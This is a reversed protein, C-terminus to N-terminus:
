PRRELAATAARRVAADSSTAALDALLAADGRALALRLRAADDDPALSLAREALEAAGELDGLSRAMDSAVVFNGPHEFHWVFSIFERQRLYERLATERRWSRSVAVAQFVVLAVGLAACARRVTRDPRWLAVVAAGAALSAVSTLGVIQPVLREVGAPNYGPPAGLLLGFGKGQLGFTTAEALGAALTQPWRTGAGVLNVVAGAVTAGITARNTWAPRSASALPLLWFPLAAAQYRPGWTYGGYWDFQRAANLTLFTLGVGVCLGARVREGPPARLAVLAGVLAPPAFVFVGRSTGLATEFLTHASPLTFGLVGRASLERLEETGFLSYGTRWPAGFCATHYAMILLLLPAAGAGFALLARAREQAGGRCLVVWAAFLPFLIATPYDCVPLASACAGAIAACRPAGQAAYRLVALTAGAVCAGVLAHPYLATALPFAFTGVGYAATVWLREGLSLAGRSAEGTVAFVLAAAAAGALPGVVFTVAAFGATVSGGLSWVLAYPAVGVFAPGPAAVSYHHGDHFAKDSTNEHFDDITLRRQEVIARTLDLYRNPVEGEFPWLFVTYLLLASVFVAGVRRPEAGPNAVAAHM